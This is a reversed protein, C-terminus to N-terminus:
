ERKLLSHSLTDAYEHLPGARALMQPKRYDVRQTRSATIDKFAYNVLSELSLLAQDGAFDLAQLLCDSADGCGSNVTALDESVANNKCSLYGISGYSMPGVEDTAAYTFLDSVGSVAALAGGTCLSTQLGLCLILALLTRIKM